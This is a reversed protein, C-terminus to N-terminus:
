TKNRFTGVFLPLNGREPLHHVMQSAVHCYLLSHHYHDQGTTKVWAYAEPESEDNGLDGNFAKSSTPARKMDQLHSAFLQQEADVTVGVMGARIDDMLINLAVNRNINVQRRDLLTRQQDESRDIVRFPEMDRTTVYVAGYLNHINQQLRHITEVYPQSDAVITTPRHRAILRQLDTELTRYDLRHKEIVTLRGQGDTVGVTLHCETGMDMGFVRFGHLPLRGVEEMHQVDQASLGSDRDEMVQGLHYNVFNVKRKFRTSWLVLDAASIITPADTPSVQFGEADFNDSPNECVWARHQHSLDAPKACHPCFFQAEKWRIRSLTQANIALLDGSYDPIKAHQLYDPIYWRGCHVCKCQNYYRKSAQFKADIAFNPLTPTSLYFWWRYKSATLRSQLNEVNEQVSFDLEDVTIMDGPFSIVSNTSTTGTLYLFSNGIRKVSSSDVQKSLKSRLRPSTEIVRDVRAKAFKQAFVETPLTYFAQFGDIIDMLALARRLALESLGVQSCKKVVITPAESQLIRRQYERGVFSFPQGNITTHQEIWDAVQSPNFSGFLDSHIGSVIDSFSFGYSM